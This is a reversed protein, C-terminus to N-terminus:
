DALIRAAGAFARAVGGEPDSVVLPLGADGGQRL